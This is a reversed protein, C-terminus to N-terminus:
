YRSYAKARGNEVRCEGDFRRLKGNNFEVVLTVEVDFARRARPVVNDISEFYIRAAGRELERAEAALACAEVADAAGYGAQRGQYEDDAQLEAMTGDAIVEALIADTDGSTDEYRHPASRGELVRFTGRCGGDTWVGGSDYGWTSNFTCPTNSKQKALEVGFRTDAPCYTYRYGGSDCELYFDAVAPATLGLMTTLAVTARLLRM